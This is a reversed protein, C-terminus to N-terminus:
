RGEPAPPNREFSLADILNKGIQVAEPSLADRVNRRTRTISRSAVLAIGGPNAALAAGILARSLLEPDALDGNVAASLRACIEPEAALWQSMPGFARMLARHTIRFPTAEDSLAPDLVSWSYQVIDFVGPWQSLIASTEDRSTALGIALAKGMKRADQLVEVVEPTVDSAMPMHMLYADVRDTRLHRLSEELKALIFEPRYDTKRMQAQPAKAHRRLLGRLPGLASRLALTARGVVPREIGFKTSITVQNRVKRLAGGVVAEATGLGYQPSVDFHLAGEDFAARLLREDHQTFSGATVYACGIGIGSTMIKGNPLVPM